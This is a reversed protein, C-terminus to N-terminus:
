CLAGPQSSTTALGLLGLIMCWVGLEYLGKVATFGGAGKQSDAPGRSRGSTPWARPWAWASSGCGTVPSPGTSASTASCCVAWCSCPFFGIPPQGSLDDEMVYWPLVLLLVAAIRLWDIDRRRAAPGATAM